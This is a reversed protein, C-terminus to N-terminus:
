WSQPNNFNKTEAHPHQQVCIRKARQGAGVFFTAMTALRIRTIMVTTIVARRTSVSNTRRIIALPFPQAPFIAIPLLAKPYM